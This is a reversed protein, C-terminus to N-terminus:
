SGGNLLREIEDHFDAIGSEATGLTMERLAGSSLGRQGLEAARFDEGAFVGADLLEFSRAWHEEEGDDAPPGAILMFDEVRTTNVAQPYLQMINIYDPSVVIVLGPLVSYSYTVSQRVTEFEDSKLVREFDVRAVASRFHSASRDSATIADAFFPAISGQHLRQVHYSELFADMILKWNAHVTHTNRRYLYHEGIAITDFDERLSGLFKDIDFANGDLRTWIIGGAEQTPLQALGYDNKDLDPFCDPRPLGRLSGDLNYTWAHYPCVISGSRCVSESDALRTGRHQCVNVFVRAHGHRDRALILPKGYADHTVYHGPEPLLASPAIPVPLQRFLTQQERGFRKRGVYLNAAVKRTGGQIALGKALGDLLTRMPMTLKRRTVRDDSQPKKM